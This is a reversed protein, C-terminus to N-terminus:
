NRAAATHHGEPPGCKFAVATADANWSSRWFAVDHDPFRHFPELKTIPQSALTDDHWVLTWWPEQGTHGLSKM